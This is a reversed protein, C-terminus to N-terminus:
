IHVAITQKEAYRYYLEKSIALVNGSPHSCMPYKSADFDHTWEYSARAVCADYATKNLSVGRSFDAVGQQIYCGYRLQYFGGVQGAWQRNAYDCLSTISSSGATQPTWVSTISRAAMEFYRELTTNGAAWRKADSIWSSALFGSDSCLLRDVDAMLDLMAKGRSRVEAVTTANLLKDFLDNSVKSLVERGLNVLDYSMTQSLPAEEAAQILKEWAKVVLPLPYWSQHPTQMTGGLPLATLGDANKEAIFGGLSKIVQSNLENSYVSQLLLNFADKAKQSERGYRQLTWTDKWSALDVPTQLWNLDSVFSYYFPNQDIGEPAAGTGAVNSTANFAAFPASNLTPVSGWMGTNGGFNHLVSWIFPTGFYGFDHFKQWEPDAEDFMDLMVFHKSPVASVFGKMFPLKDSGWGRWIWGQYLWIAKPDTANMSKYAAAAHAFARPDAPVDEPHQWMTANMTSRTSRWPGQKQDFYGDTEYWHDTGWDSIMIEMYRKQIQSFLPDLDDLWAAGSTSINAHPYLERFAPPLNGQFTPLVSVFGLSRSRELIQKQLQWQRTMWSEPLPMCADGCRNGIGHMSQGRSWALWAAGNSWDAFEENTVGFDNFTKRYIEEQGTYAIIVNIGNLAAWDLWAEWQGFDYWAYSYSFTVVNNFYSIPVTRYRTVATRVSPWEKPVEIHHGGTRNWSFSMNCSTRLYWAAGYALDIGSTAAVKIKNDAMMLDFCLGTKADKPRPSQCKTVLELEFVNSVEEPSLHLVRSLLDAVASASGRGAFDYAVLGDATVSPAILSFLLVDSFRIM